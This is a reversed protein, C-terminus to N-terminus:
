SPSSSLGVEHFDQRSEGELRKSGAHGYSAVGGWSQILQGVRWRLNAVELGCDGAMEEVLDTWPDTWGFIDELVLGRTHEDSASSTSNLPYSPLDLTYIPSLDKKTFQIPVQWEQALYSAAAVIGGDPHKMWATVQQRFNSSLDAVGSTKALLGVAMMQAEGDMSILQNVIEVFVDEQGEELLLLAGREAEVNLLPVGLMLAWAFLAALNQLEGATSSKEPLAGGIRYDRTAQLHESLRDWIQSWPVEEFLLPFISGIDWLTSGVGYRANAMDLTFARRASEHADKEGLLHRIEHFSRRRHNSPWAWGAEDDDGFSALITRAYDLQCAAVASRAVALRVEEHAMVDPYEDVFCSVDQWGTNSIVRIAARRLNYTIRRNGQKGGEGNEDFYGFQSSIAESIDSLSRLHGYSRHEPDSAESGGALEWRGAATAAKDGYGRSRAGEELTKLLRHKAEPRGLTEIYSAAREELHAVLGDDCGSMLDAIFQGFSTTSGHPEEYWPLALHSWAVLIQSALDPSRHLAGRLAADVIGDWSLVGTGAAWRSADLSFKPSAACAEFLIQRGARVASDDGETSRMGDLLRLAIKARDARASPDDLNALSLVSTWLEYQGDKKAPLYCGLSSRRLSEIEARAADIAGVWGLAMAYAAREEVEAQPNYEQVDALGANLRSTAAQVDGDNKFMGVAFERRFSHWWRFVAADEAVLQDILELSGFERRPDLKALDFLANLITEAAAPIGFGVFADESPTARATALFKIASETLSLIPVDTAARGSRLDGIATGIAVIHHQIGRWLRNQPVTLTPIPVQLSARATVGALLARSTSLLRDSQHQKEAEALDELPCQDLFESAIAKESLEIATKAGAMAWSHHLNDLCGSRLANQLLSKALSTQGIQAAAIAGEIELLCQREKNVQWKEVLNSMPLAPDSRIMARAIQFKFARLIESVEEGDQDFSAQRILRTEIRREIQEESLFAVARQAWPFAKNANSGGFPPPRESIFAFPNQDEFIRRAAEVNGASMLADIVIWQKGDQSSESLSASASRADGIALQADILSHASEMISARRTVEDDALLLDFLKTADVKNELARLADSIDARVAHAPRGECYQDVFYSRSAVTTAEDLDGALFLYRFKLWSQDSRIPAEDVLKALTRYVEAREFHLDPSGFKLVPKRRVFLRFSNHFIRWGDESLDLLHRVDRLTLEVSEDSTAKALAEPAIRGEVQALLALVQHLSGSSNQAGVGRWASEYVAELDGGFPVTDALLRERDERSAGALRELLYRTALPHGGGLEFIKSADIEDGLAFADKMASIAFPSLRAVNIGRGPQGAQQQVAPAIEPLDLKQTGLVFLVGDPISQPIPLVSLLSRETPEERPIHDLGDVVIIIRSKNRKFIEGAQALLHEFNERRALLTDDKVRLPKLGTAALQTNVDDLFSIAEGRGQGQAMGPVFALYRVVRLQPRDQLERQLLTSKGSGPPGILSLYGGCHERIATDLDSETKENRQVYSGIPFQHHFRLAFRDPWGIEQLLEARTWRDKEPNDIILASLARALEETQSIREAGMAPDLTPAASPGIILEFCTWFKDFEQERLGSAEQIEDIVSKWRSGQWDALSWSRNRIWTAVFDATSSNPQGILLKDNPSPFNNTLFKIKVTEDVFQAQLLLFASALKGIMNESGLLLGKLGVAKPKEAKKFQHALVGEHTGLVLDDAIGANRDALGVWQLKRDIIAQYILRASSRDQHTYGLRASREGDAPNKVGTKRVHGNM